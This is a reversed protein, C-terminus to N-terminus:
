HYLVRRIDDVRFPKGVYEDFATEKKIDVIDGSTSVAYIAQLNNDKEFERVRQMVEIGNMIPMNNDIYVVVYPKGQKHSDIIMELAMKGNTAIDVECYEGDLIHELLTISTKDDDVILVKPAEHNNVFSYLEEGYSAYEFILTCNQAIEETNISFLEEEIVLVKNMREILRQTQSDIKHQYVILKETDKPIADLSSVATINEKKLGMRTLYRVINLLSFSNKPSILVTVKQNKDELLAFTAEERKINLPLTFYFITGKDVESELKLEGGLDQVYKSCISLGLGTGGYNLATTDEAQKFAEFIESQKEKPIGIGKDRVYFAINKEKENYRVIFEISKGAPTFKYANGLLNMLVRKLKLADSEIVKPLLPDIYINFAIKKAYMNSIFMEAISAFFQVSDIEEKKNKQEEHHLSIKDLMSTTLENIFGASQKANVIYEKLRKDSIQAELLELFGQLTNAPTRIDHVFNAMVNLSKDSTKQTNQLNEVAQFNKLTQKQVGVQTNTHCGCTLDNCTHMKYLADILYPSLAELVELDERTYKKVHKISSYATVIGVFKEKDILPLIIKSKIKINDPNDISAVYDKDSALYNYIGAKKTMFCKYIIGEKQELSLERLTDDGRERLLIMRKEDYFWLSSFEADLLSTVLDEVITNIEINNKALSIKKSVLTLEEQLKDKNIKKM